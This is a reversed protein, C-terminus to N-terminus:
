VSTGTSDSLACFANCKILPTTKALVTAIRNRLFAFLYRM